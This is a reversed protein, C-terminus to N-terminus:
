WFPIYRTSGNITWMLYGVPNGATGAPGNTLTLVDSANTGLASNVIHQPTASTAGLKVIGGDAVSFAVTTNDLFQVIDSTTTLNSAALAATIGSPAVGLGTNTTSIAFYGGAYSTSSGVTAAGGIVGFSRPNSGSAGDTSALVGINYNGNAVYAGVGVNGAAATSTTGFVQSYLGWVGGGSFLSVTSTSSGYQVDILMKQQGASGSGGLAATINGGNAVNFITTSDDKLTLIPASASSNSVILAAATGGTLTTTLAGNSDETLVSDGIASSSTWKAHKTATGSGTVASIATSTWTTGNSTLVNGATGPAVFTPNSTGNGLIVNNATLTTLGTGGKNVPVTGSYSTVGGNTIAIDGTMAVATAVNGASGVLINASTLSALKSFDIAASASVDANVISSYSWTGTSVHPIGSQASSDGGTGGKAATVTPLDAAVLSRFSPTSSSGNSPSAFVTNGSQSALSVALTGSTTVPSGSVSMISPVTMAVSTVTGSGGGGGATVWSSGDWCYLAGSTTVVRCDGATNGSAPLSGVDSVTPKWTPAGGMLSVDAVAHLTFFLLFIFYKM